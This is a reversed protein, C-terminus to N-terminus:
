NHKDETNEYEIAMYTPHESVDRPRRSLGAALVELVRRLTNTLRQYLDISDPSPDDTASFRAELRELELTLVAARRVLSSEAESVATSGGLDSLHLHVLDQLRRSWAGNPDGGILLKRGSTVASRPRRVRATAANARPGPNAEVTM